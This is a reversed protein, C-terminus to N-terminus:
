ELRALEFPVTLFIYVCVLLTVAIWLARGLLLRSGELRYLALSPASARQSTLPPALLDAIKMLARRGSVMLYGCARHVLAARRAMRGLPSSGQLVRSPKM